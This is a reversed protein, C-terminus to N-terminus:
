EEMTEEEINDADIPEDVTAEAEANIPGNDTDVAGDAEYETNASTSRSKRSRELTNWRYAFVSAKHGDDEAVDTEDTEETEASAENLKAALLEGAETEDKDIEEMQKMWELTTGKATQVLLYRDFLLTKEVMWQIIMTELWM